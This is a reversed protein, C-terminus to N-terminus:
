EANSENNVEKVEADVSETKAKAVVVVRPTKLFTALIAFVAYSMVLIGFVILQADRSIVPDNGICLAGLVISIAACILEGVFAVVAPKTNKNVFGFVLVLVADTAIIAGAVILLYPVFSIFALILAGAINGDVVCFIGAALLSAAGLGVAAFSVEGKTAIAGALAIIVILAGLVIFTIGITKSIAAFADASTEGSAAGTIVCLLGVVFIISAIIWKSLSKKVFEM